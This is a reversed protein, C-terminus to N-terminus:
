IIWVCLLPRSELGILPHGSSSAIAARFAEADADALVIVPAPGAPMLALEAPTAHSPTRSPALPQGLPCPTCIPRCPAPNDRSEDAPQDPTHRATPVCAIRCTMARPTLAGGCGMGCDSAVSSGGSAFCASPDSACRAMIGACIPAPLVSQVLLLAALLTRLDM